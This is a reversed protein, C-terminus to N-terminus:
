FDMLAYAYNGNTTCDSPVAAVIKWVHGDAQDYTVAYSVGCRECVFISYGGTVCDGEVKVAEGYEHGLKDVYKTAFNTDEWWYGCECLYIRVGPDDCSADTFYFKGDKAQYIDFSYKYKVNAAEAEELTEFVLAKHPENATGDEGETKTDGCRTCTYTTIVNHM